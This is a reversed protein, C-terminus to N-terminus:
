GAKALVSNPSHSELYEDDEEESHREGKTRWVRGRTASRGRIYEFEHRSVTNRSADHKAEELVTRVESLVKANRQYVFIAALLDMLGFDPWLKETFHLVCCRSQRLMFDSLRREGSTRVLLDVEGPSYLADDLHDVRMENAAVSARSMEESATYSFLVNLTCRENGQTEEMVIRAAEQVGHPALSLDGLVRVRIGERKLQASENVLELLKEEVLSMLLEVEEESRTYNDISFAYVSVTSVSLELCWQLISLLTGYGTIHGEIPRRGQKDAYRRNGDMIFAVHSPIRDRKLAAIALKTLRKQLVDYMDKIISSISLHSKM